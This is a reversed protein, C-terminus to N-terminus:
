RRRGAAPLASLNQAAADVPGRGQDVTRLRRRRAHCAYRSPPLFGTAFGTRQRIHRTDARFGSVIGLLAKV